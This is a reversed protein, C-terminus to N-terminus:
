ILHTVGHIKFTRKLAPLKSKITAESPLSSPLSGDEGKFDEVNKSYAVIPKLKSYVKAKQMYERLKNVYIVPIRARRSKAKRAGVGNEVKAEPAKAQLLLLKSIEQRIVTETPM